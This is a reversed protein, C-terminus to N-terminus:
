GAPLVLLQKNHPWILFVARERPHGATEISEEHPLPGSSADGDIADAAVEAKMRLWDLCVSLESRLDQCTDAGRNVASMKQRITRIREYSEEVDVIPGKVTELGPVTKTAM